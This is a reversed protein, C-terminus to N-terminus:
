SRSRRSAMRRGVWPPSPKPRASKRRRPIVAQICAQDSHARGTSGTVLEWGRTSSVIGASMRDSIVVSSAPMIRQRCCSARHGADGMLFDIGSVEFSVGIEVDALRREALHKFVGLAGLPLVTEALVGYRQAPRYLSDDDNITIEPLGPSRSDIPFSKLLQDRFHAQAFGADHKTQFNGAQRSVGGIPVAQQLDAREGVRENKIFVADIVWRVEVIAEQQAQLPGHAFCFQVHQPSPQLAPDQVLGAAALELTGQGDAKEVISLVLRNEVRVLLNL